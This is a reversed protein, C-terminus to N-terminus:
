RPENQEQTIPTNRGDRGRIQDRLLRSLAKQGRKAWFRPTEHSYQIDGANQLTAASPFLVVSLLRLRQQWSNAQLLLAKRGGSYSRQLEYLLANEAQSREATNWKSITSRLRHVCDKPVPALLANALYELTLLVPMAAPRGAIKESLRPWDIKGSSALKWADVVSITSNQSNTAALLLLHLLADEPSLTFFETKYGHQAVARERLEEWSFQYAPMKHSTGHLSIPLGSSHYLVRDQQSGSFPRGSKFDCRRELVEAAAPLSQEHMLLDIDHCHRAEDKGYLGISFSVGGTALFPIGANGLQELVSSAIEAYARTRLEEYMQSARLVARLEEPATINARLLAANLLPLIRRRAAVGAQMGAYEPSQAWAVFAKQAAVGNWLCVRLLETDSAQPLFLCCVDSLPM